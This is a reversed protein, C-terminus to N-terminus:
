APLVPEFGTPSAMSNLPKAASRQFDDSQIKLELKGCYDEEIMTVSTGCYEAIAKLNYGAHCNENRHYIVARLRV